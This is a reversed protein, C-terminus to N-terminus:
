PLARRWRVDDISAGWIEATRETGDPAWGDIRYFRQARENGVLVWLVAKTYGFSHLRLRAEEILRRGVGAGWASPDVHLAHLQGTSADLDADAAPGTTAFGCVRGNLIAVITHPVKPDAAGLTYSGARDEARLSDLYDPAVLGRYGVKWANVHVTAVPLADATTAPRTLLTRSSM